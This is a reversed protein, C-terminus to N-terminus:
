IAPMHGESLRKKVKAPVGAAMCDDPIDRTVVSGAAIICRSGIHVGPCVTVNSGLWTDDGITIPLGQEVPQRRRMYDTPHQPTCLSCNPGILVHRGITICGCDLMTCNHNVFVDEALRIGTGHDCHFPPAITSSKPICPILEEIVDRYDDDYICMTQLRACLRRARRMREDVEPVSFDYFEGSRMKELETAM